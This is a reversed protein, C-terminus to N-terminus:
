KFLSGVPALRSGINGIGKGVAGSALSQLSKTPEGLASTVLSNMQDVERDLAALQEGVAAQGDALLRGARDSALSRVANDMAEAVAPGATSWVRWKPHDLDGSLNVTTVFQPTQSLQKGLAREFDAEALVDGLSAKVHPTVRVDRQVIQVDGSLREGTLMLSVSLSATSPAVSLGLVDPKGLDLKPLSFTPCDAILEDTAVQGTRDITARVEIPAAGTTTLSLRM